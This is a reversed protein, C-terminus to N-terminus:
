EIRNRRFLRIVKDRKRHQSVNKTGGIPRAPFASSDTLDQILPQSSSLSPVDADLAAPPGPVVRIQGHEVSDLAGTLPTHASTRTVSAEPVSSDFLGPFAPLPMLPDHLLIARQCVFCSSYDPMYICNDVVNGQNMQLAETAAADAEANRGLAHLSNAMIHLHDMLYTAVGTDTLDLTYLLPISEQYAIVAEAHQGLKHCSLGYNYLASCLLDTHKAGAQPINHYLTIAEKLVNVSESVQGLRHITSGYVYLIDALQADYQAPDQAPATKWLELAEKLSAFADDLEGLEYLAFGMNHLAAVLYHTYKVPDNNALTRRISISRRYVEAAKTHQQLEQLLVGYNYYITGCLLPTVMISPLEKTMLQVARGLWQAGLEPHDGSWYGARYLINLLRWKNSQSANDTVVEECISVARIFLTHARARYVSLGAILALTEAHEHRFEISRRGMAEALELACNSTLNCENSLKLDDLVKALDRLRHLIVLTSINHSQVIDQLLAEAQSLYEGMENAQKQCIVTKGNETSLEITDSDSELLSRYEVLRLKIRDYALSADPSLISFTVTSTSTDAVVQFCYRHNNM